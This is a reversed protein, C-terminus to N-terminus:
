VTPNFEVKVLGGAALVSVFRAGPLAVANATDADDRVAGENGGAFRVFVAAGYAAATESLMWIRGTRMIKVADNLAWGTGAELTVDNTAFGIGAPGTVDTTLGPLAVRPPIEDAPAGALPAIRSVFRGFSIAESGIGSVIDRHFSIDALLGEVAPAPVQTYATQSM